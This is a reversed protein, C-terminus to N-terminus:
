RLITFVKFIEDSVTWLMLMQFYPPANSGISNSPQKDQFAGDIRFAILLKLLVYAGAWIDKDSFAQM